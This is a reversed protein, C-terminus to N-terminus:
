IRKTAPWGAIALAARRREDSPLGGPGYGAVLGRVGRPSQHPDLDFHHSISGNLVRRAGANARRFRFPLPVAVERAWLSCATGFRGEKYHNFRPLTTWRTELPPQFSNLEIRAGQQIRSKM